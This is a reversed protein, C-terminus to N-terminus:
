KDKKVCNPVKKGDKTKMGDKQYGDVMGFKNFDSQDSHNAFNTQLDRGFLFRMAASSATAALKKSSLM